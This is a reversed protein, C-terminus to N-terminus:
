QTQPAKRTAQFRSQSSHFPHPHTEPSELEMDDASAYQKRKRGASVPEPEPEPETIPEGPEIEETFFDQSAAEILSMDLPQPEVYNGFEDLLEPHVAGTSALDQGLDSNVRDPDMMAGTGIRHSIIADAEAKAGVSFDIIEKEDKWYVRLAAGAFCFMALILFADNKMILMTPVVVVLVMSIWFTTVATKRREEIKQIWIPHM